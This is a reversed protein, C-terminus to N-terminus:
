LVMEEHYLPEYRVTIEIDSFAGDDLHRVLPRGDLIMGVDTPCLRIVLKSRYLMFSSVTVPRLVSLNVVMARGNFDFGRHILGSDKLVVVDSDSIFVM